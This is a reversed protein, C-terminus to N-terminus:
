RCTNAQNIKEAPPLTLMKHIIIKNGTALLNTFASVGSLPDGTLQRRVAIKHM